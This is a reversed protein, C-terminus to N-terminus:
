NRVIIDQWGYGEDAMEQGVSQEGGRITILCKEASQYTTRKWSNVFIM